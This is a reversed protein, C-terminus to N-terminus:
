TPNGARAELWSETEELAEPTGIDHFREYVEFAALERATILKQLVVYLDFAEADTDGLATVPLLMYGYDIFEHTGPPDGKTYAAVRGAVVSTNSPQWQDRNRLVTM